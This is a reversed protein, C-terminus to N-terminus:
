TENVSTPEQSLHGVVVYHQPFEDYRALLQRARDPLHAQEYHEGAFTKVDRISDFRLVTMYEVETEMVRKFIEYGRYGELNRADIGPFVEDRIFSEYTAANDLTTWGHWVRAIM